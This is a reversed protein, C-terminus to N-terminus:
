RSSSSCCRAPRPKWPASRRIRESPPTAVGRASLESVLQLGTMGPMRVDTVICDGSGCGDSGLFTVASDWTRCSLGATELLFALSARVADDDDIVHVLASSPSM